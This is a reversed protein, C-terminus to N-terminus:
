LLRQGGVGDAAPRSWRRRGGSNGGPPPWWGLRPVGLALRGIRSKKAVQSAVRREGSRGSSWRASEV